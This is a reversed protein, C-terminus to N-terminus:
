YRYANKGGDLPLVPFLFYPHLNFIEKPGLPKLGQRVFRELRVRKREKDRISEFEMLRGVLTKYGKAGDEWGGARVQFYEILGEKQSDLRPKPLRDLIESYRSKQPLGNLYLFANLRGESLARGVLRDVKSARMPGNAYKPNVGLGGLRNDVYLNPTYNVEKGQKLILLPFDNRNRRVDCQFDRAEPCDRIMKSIAQGIELPSQSAEGAKLSFNLILKQNLYGLRGNKQGSSKNDERNVMSFMVNNVMAFDEVAYSKGVSLQLGLAAANREWVLCLPKPCPFLIDDGNIKTMSLIRRRDGRGLIGSDEGESITKLLGALNIMCLIPFSLPHGMLQGNKQVIFRPLDEVGDIPSLVDKASYNVFTGDLGHVPLKDELGLIRIVEEYCALTSHMNLQDTAAKYDGSNWVWGRPAHWSEVEEEWDARMTSFSSQAWCKLLLGQLPQLYSYLVGSGATIVRLKGPEPIAQVRVEFDASVNQSIRNKLSKWLETKWHSVEHDFVNVSRIDFDPVPVAETVEAFAGGKKRSYGFSANKSPALKEFEGDKVVVNTAHIVADKFDLSLAQPNRSLYAQHDKITEFKKKECIEPWGRKSLLLSAFFRRSKKAGGRALVRQLSIVRKLVGVFVDKRGLGVVSGSSPLEVHGTQDDVDGVALQFLRASWYKILDLDQDVRWDLSMLFELGETFSDSVKQVLRVDNDKWASSLLSSIPIALSLFIKNFREREHSSFDKGKLIKPVQRLLRCVIPHKVKTFCCKNDTLSM